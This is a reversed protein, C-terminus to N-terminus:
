YTHCIANDFIHEIYDHQSCGDVWVQGWGIRMGRYKMQREDRIAHHAHPPRKMHTGTEFQKVGAAFCVFVAQLLLLAPLLTAWSYVCM